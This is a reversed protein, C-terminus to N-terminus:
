KVVSIVAAVLVTTTVGVAHPARRGGLGDGLILGDLAEGHAVNHIGRSQSVDAVGAGVVVVVHGLEVNLLVVANLRSNVLTNDPHTALLIALDALGGSADTARTELNNSNQSDRAESHFHRM